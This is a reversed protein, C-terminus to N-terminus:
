SCCRLGSIHKLSNKRFHNLQKLTYIIMQIAGAPIKLFGEGLNSVFQFATVCVQPGEAQEQSSHLLQGETDGAGPAGPAVEQRGGSAKDLGGLAGPEVM